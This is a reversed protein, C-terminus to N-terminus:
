KKEAVDIIITNSALNGDILYVFHKGLIKYYETKPLDFTWTGYGVSEGPSIEYVMAKRDIELIGSHCEEGHQNSFHLSLEGFKHYDSIIISKNFINKIESNINIQEGVEYAEKDSKIILQLPQEGYNPSAKTIVDQAFCISTILVLMLGPELIKKM